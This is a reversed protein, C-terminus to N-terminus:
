IGKVRVVVAFLSYAMKLTAFFANLNLEILGGAKIVRGRSGLTLQTFVLLDFRHERSQDYWRSSFIAYPLSEVEEAVESAFYCSPFLQMCVVGFFVLYYVLSITDGLLWSLTCSPLFCKFFHALLIEAM